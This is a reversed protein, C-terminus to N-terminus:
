GDNKRGRKKMKLKGSLITGSEVWGKEGGECVCVCVREGERERKRYNFRENWNLRQM